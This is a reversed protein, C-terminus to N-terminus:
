PTDQKRDKFESFWNQVVRIVPRPPEGTREAILFRQGDASVAYRQRYTTAVRGPTLGTNQFLRRAPGLSFDPATTVPVAVLTEGEVYFLEKGDARWRPQDGGNLSVQRKGSGDPFRRVYVEEENGSEDSVYALFRTDPSFAAKAESFPTQLFPVSEYGGGDKRKLYWLDARNRPDMVQYAFYRVDSSWDCVQEPLLSAVLPKAEGSGDGPMRFIDLNGQRDSQFTIEKGGPLWIPRTDHAEAFTLRSKNGRAVDHLWIDPRAGEWAGAAVTSGDPSISFATIGRQPQGVAGVKTGTGDRWTLQDLSLFERELYVLTGDRAVSPKSGGRAVPFPEGTVNLTAVSFPLANLGDYLVHGTPSYAPAVAGTAVVKRQGTKLSHVVIEHTAGRKQSAYLLVRSGAPSPLFSPNDYHDGKGPGREVEVILKPAGGQAPVEYLGQRLIAYVISEGDPSWAGGLFDEAPLRCIATLNGTQAQAKRLERGAAFGVHESDPSWFPGQAGESNTIARPGISELDQIWLRRESAEGAVYAIHRGDPSIAPAAPNGEPAFTFKRVPMKPAAGPRSLWLAVIIGVAAVLAAIFAIRERSLRPSAERPPAPPREMEVAPEGGVPEVPAIFRYGRRPLTEVYRPAEASDGLTERLKNIATNLSHDFNVFTDKPWLKLRLDERTVLEGPRELLLALLQLPQEQIRLKLGSKRLDGTQLDVEFVGFRVGRAFAPLKGM